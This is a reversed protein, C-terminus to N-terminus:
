ECLGNFGSHEAVETFGPDDGDGQGLESLMSGHHHIVLAGPARILNRGIPSRLADNERASNRQGQPSHLVM